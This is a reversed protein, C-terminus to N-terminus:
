ERVVTPFPKLGAAVVRKGLEDLMSLQAEVTVEDLGSARCIAAISYGHRDVVSQALSGFEFATRFALGEESSVFGSGDADAIPKLANFEAERATAFDAQLRATVAPDAGPVPCSTSRFTPVFRGTQADEDFTLMSQGIRISVATMIQNKGSETIGQERITAIYSDLDPPNQAQAPGGLLVGVSTLALIVKM